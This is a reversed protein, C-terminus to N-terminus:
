GDNLGERKYPQLETKIKINFAWPQQTLWETCRVFGDSDILNLWKNFCIFLAAAKFRKTLKIVAYVRGM